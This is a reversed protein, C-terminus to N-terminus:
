RLDIRFLQEGENVEYRGDVRRFGTKELVRNSAPNDVAVGASICSISSQGRCWSVFGNVLESAMGQGWVDQSLLYGLRVEKGSGEALQTELLILLGVVDRVAKDIVLLTTGEKDRDNIWTRARATTCIQQWAPPLSRVVAPTLLGVVVDELENHRWDDPVLSHWEKVLLRETEFECTSLVASVM